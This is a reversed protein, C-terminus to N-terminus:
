KERVAPSVSKAVRVVFTPVFPVTTEAAQRRIPAVKVFNTAIEQVITRGIPNQQPWIMRSETPVKEKVEFIFGKLTVCIAPAKFNKGNRIGIELARAGRLASNRKRSDGQKANQAIHGEFRHACSLAPQASLRSM